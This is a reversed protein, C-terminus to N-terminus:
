RLAALIEERVMRKLNETKKKDDEDEADEGVDKDRLGKRLKAFDEAEIKGDDDVDLEKQKGKLAEEQRMRSRPDTGIGLTNLVDRIEIEVANAKKPDLTLPALKLVLNMLQTRFDDAAGPSEYSMPSPSRPDELERLKDYEEQIIQKVRDRSMKIKM